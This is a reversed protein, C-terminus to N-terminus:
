VAERGRGVIDGMNRKEKQGGLEAENLYSEFKSGFLTEPRRYGRMEKESSWQACKLDIVKRFDTIEWGERFRATILSVTKKSTHKFKSGIQVNLYDVVVKVWPCRRAGQGVTDKDTKQEKDREREIDRERHLKRTDSKRTVKPTKTKPASKGRKARRRKKEDELSTESGKGRYPKQRAYESQYRKWNVIQICNGEDVKIRDTKVLRPKARSWEERTLNLIDGVQVDTLGVGPALQIAGEDGYASDAALALLDAWVGRIEATEERLTGRLWADAYIKLWTRRGM